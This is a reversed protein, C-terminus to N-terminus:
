HTTADLLDDYKHIELYPVHYHNSRHALGVKSEAEAGDEVQARQRPLTWVAQPKQVATADHADEQVCQNGDECEVQDISSLRLEARDQKLFSKARQYSIQSQVM